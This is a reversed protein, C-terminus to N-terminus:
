QFLELFMILLVQLPMLKKRKQEAGNSYIQRVNISSQRCDIGLRRRSAAVLNNTATTFIKTTYPTMSSRDHSFIHVFTLLFSPARLRGKARNRQLFAGAEMPDLGVSVSGAPVGSCLSFIAGLRRCELRDV